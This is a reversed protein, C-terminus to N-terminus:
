APGEALRQRAEALAPALWDIAEPTIPDLVIQLHDIGAAGFEALRAAIDSVSGSIPGLARERSAGSARGGGGPAQVLVAATRTIDDPDRGVDHAIRNVRALYPEIGAVTNGFDAYWINWQDVHPLTIRLMREGTSGILIPLSAGRPGRPILTCDLASYWEGQFNISGNRILTHIITFAEEFRSIRHGFPYGYARYENENWGAGLGLIFRGGSIEDISEAIKATM